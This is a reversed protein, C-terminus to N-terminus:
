SFITTNVKLIHAGVQPIPALDVRHGLGEGLARGVVVPHSVDEFLVTGSREFEFLVIVAFFVFCLRMSHSIESILNMKTGDIVRNKTLFFYMSPLLNVDTRAFLLM